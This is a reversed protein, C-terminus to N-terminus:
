MDCKVKGKKRGEANRMGVRLAAVGRLAKAYRHPGPAYRPLRAVNPM